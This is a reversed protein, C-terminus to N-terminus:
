GQGRGGWNTFGSRARNAGDWTVNQGFALAYAAAEEDDDGASGLGGRRVWGAGWDQGCDDDDSLPSKVYGDSKGSNASYGSVSKGRANRTVNTGGERVGDQELHKRLSRISQQRKPHLMQALDLEGEDDDSSLSQGGEDHEYDTWAAEKGGRRSLYQNKVDNATRARSSIGKGNNWPDGETHTRALSPMRDKDADRTKRRKDGRGRERRGDDGRVLSSARSGPASRCVVKTRTVESESRGSRGRELMTLLPPPLLCPTNTQDSLMQGGQRTRHSRRHSPVQSLSSRSTRLAQQQPRRTGHQLPEQMPGGIHGSGAARVARTVSEFWTNPLPPQGRHDEEGEGNGKGSFIISPDDECHGKERTRTSFVSRPPNNPTSRSRPPQISASSTMHRLYAGARSPRPSAIATLHSIHSKSHSVQRTPRPTSDDLSEVSSTMNSPTVPSCLSREAIPSHPPSYNHDSDSQQQLHRGGAPFLNTLFDVVATMSSLRNDDGKRDNGAAAELREMEPTFVRTEKYGAEKLLDELREYTKSTGRRHLPVRGIDGYRNRPRAPPTSPGPPSSSSNSASAASTTQSPSTEPSSSYYGQHYAKLSDLPTDGRKIPVNAPSVNEAM